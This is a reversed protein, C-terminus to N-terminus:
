QEPGGKVHKECKVKLGQYARRIFGQPSQPEHEPLNCQVVTPIAIGGINVSAMNARRVGM